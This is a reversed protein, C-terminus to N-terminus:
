HRARFLLSTLGFSSAACQEVVKVSSYQTRQFPMKLVVYPDSLGNANKPTLNRAELIRVCLFKSGQPEEILRPKELAQSLEPPYSEVVLRRAAEPVLALADKRTAGLLELAEAWAADDRWRTQLTFLCEDADGVCLRYDWPMPPRQQWQKLFAGSNSVRWSYVVVLTGPHAPESQM